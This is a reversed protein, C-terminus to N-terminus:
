EHSLIVKLRNILDINNVPKAVFHDKGLEDMIDSGTERYRSLEAATLFCIKLKNDIKRLKRYLEFGDMEPMKVDLIALDYAGAKFRSLALEPDYFAEVQLYGSEELAMKLTVTIDLEDDVLLIRKKSADEETASIKCRESINSSTFFTIQWSECLSFRLSNLHFCTGILLVLRLNARTSCCLKLWGLSRVGGIRSAIKKNIKLIKSAKYGIMKTCFVEPIINWLKNREAM